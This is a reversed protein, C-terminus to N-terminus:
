KKKMKGTPLRKQISKGEEVLSNIQNNKWLDMRRRLHDKNERAKGSKSTRQLLLNPMIMLQTISKIDKLSIWERILRTMEDIYQKGINGKPVDFLNRRWTVIEEYAASVEVEDATALPEVIAPLQTTSSTQQGKKRKNINNQAAGPDKMNVHHM